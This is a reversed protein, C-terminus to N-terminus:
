QKLIGSGLLAGIPAGNKHNLQHGIAAGLIPGGLGDGDGLPIIGVVTDVIKGVSGLVGEFSFSSKTEALAPQVSLLATFVASIVINKKM